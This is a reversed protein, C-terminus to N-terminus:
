HKTTVRVDSSMIILGRRVYKELTEPFLMLRKGTSCTVLVSTVNGSKNFYEKIDEVKEYEMFTM